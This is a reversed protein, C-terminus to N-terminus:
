NSNQRKYGVVLFILCLIILVIALGINDEIKKVVSDLEYANKPSSDAANSSSESAGGSESSSDDTSDSADVSKSDSISSDEGESSPGTYTENVGRTKGGYSSVNQDGGETNSNVYSVLMGLLDLGGEKSYNGASPNYKNTSNSVDPNKSPNRPHYNYDEVYGNDGDAVDPVEEQNQPDQTSSNTNDNDDTSNGNDDVPLPLPIPNPIPNPTGSSSNGEGNDDTSNGGSVDGSDVGGVDTSNGGSVDGSDVGGVDTSNGGSGSDPNDEDVDDVYNAAGGGNTHHRITDNRILPNFDPVDFINRGGIGSGNIINSINDVNEPATYNFVYGSDIDNARKASYDFENFVLNNYSMEREHVGNGRKYGGSGDEIGEQYSILTNHTITSNVASELYVSYFGDSLVTNNIIDFSHDGPSSQSYSIGYINTNENVDGTSHVEIFNNMIIDNNDQGEIGAVLAWSDEGALGTINLRNYMIFNGTNGGSNSSYIGINPGNSASYLNNYVITVNSLPGTLQIPYAAGASLRGGYTVVSVNNYAVTLNDLSYIDLAYLYNDVGPYTFFDTLMFSNNLVYSNDCDWIFFCDLTPYGFSRGIADSTVNNSVFILGDCNSASISVSYDSDSAVKGGAFNVGRLVLRSDIRNNYILANTSYDLRLAHTYVDSNFNQGTFLITSNIITLMDNPNKSTGASYIGYAESDDPATYNILVNDVVVNDARILIASGEVDDYSENLLFTLNSLLIDSGSVDFVTNIFLSEEGNFTVNKQAIRLVGLNEFTGKFNLSSDSYNSALVGNPFYKDINDSTINFDEEVYLDPIDPEEAEEGIVSLDGSADVASAGAIILFLVVLAFLSKKINEGGKVISLLELVMFFPLLYKLIYLFYNIFISM